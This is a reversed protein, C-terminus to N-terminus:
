ALESNNRMKANKPNQTALLVAIYSPIDVSVKRKDFCNLCISVLNDDRDFFSEELCHESGGCFQCPTETFYGNKLVDSFYKYNDM